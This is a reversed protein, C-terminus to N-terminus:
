GSKKVLHAPAPEDGQGDWRSFTAAGTGVCVMLNQACAASSGFGVETQFSLALDFGSAAIDTVTLTVTYPWTCLADGIQVSTMNEIDACVLTAGVIECEASLTGDSLTVNDDTGATIELVTSSLFTAYCAESPSNGLFKGALAAASVVDVPQASPGDTDDTDTTDDSSADDTDDADDTSGDDTDDGGTADSDTDKDAGGSTCALTLAVPLLLFPFLLSRM